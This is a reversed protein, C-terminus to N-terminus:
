LPPLRQRTPLRARKGRLRFGGSCASLPRESRKPFSSGRVSDQLPGEGVVCPGEGLDAVALSVCCGSTRHSIHVGGARGVVLRWAIRM